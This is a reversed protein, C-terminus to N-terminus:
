DSERVAFTEGHRGEVNVAFEGSGPTHLVRIFRGECSATDSRNAIRAANAQSEPPVSLNEHLQFWAELSGNQQRERLTALVDPHGGKSPGNCMVAVTPDVAKVLVPNNSTSLGHHTVMYVDVPGIPNNPTVLEAEVNWTLDGGCFLRFEGCTIRMALSEANDSADRDRPEHEEAYPNPEGGEAVDRSAALVEVTVPPETDSGALEFADGVRLTKSANNSAARYKAIRDPFDKDEQLADPIGRDYFTGVPINAALGAHNGYHDLHWHTVVAADIRDLKAVDRAVRLIRNLDRDGLDPYGSDVLMSEGGPSVVLMAGGGEVDIFYVSLPDALLVAFLALM